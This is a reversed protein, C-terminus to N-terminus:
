ALSLPELKGNNTELNELPVGVVDLLTGYLRPMPTNEEFRLHRGGKIKGAGGGALLIPLDDHRHMNADSLGAGYVIVSHDLLSGDGDPTSRLKELFYALVKIHHTNIRTLKAKKETNGGHHSL